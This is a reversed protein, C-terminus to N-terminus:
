MQCKEPQEHEHHSFRHAVTSSDSWKAWNVHRRKKQMQHLIFANTAMYSSMICCSHGTQHCLISLYKYEMAPSQSTEHKSEKAALIYLYAILIYTKEACTNDYIVNYLLIIDCVYNM